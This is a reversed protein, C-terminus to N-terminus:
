LQTLRVEITDYDRLSGDEQNVCPDARAGTKLRVSERNSCIFKQM